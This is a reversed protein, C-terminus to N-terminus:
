PLACRPALVSRAIPALVTLYDIVLVFLYDVEFCCALAVALSSRVRRRAGRACVSTGYRDWAGNGIM